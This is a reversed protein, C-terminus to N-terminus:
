ARVGGDPWIRDLLRDAVAVDRVLLNLSMARLAKARSQELVADVLLSEYACNHQILALVDPPPGVPRIPTVGAASVYGRVEIVADDPVGELTGHNQVNVIRQHPGLGALDRLVPVVIKDYWIARRRGLGAPAGEAAAAGPPGDLWMQYEALLDGELGALEEGRPRTSRQRELMRSPAFIYSAYPHPIAGM